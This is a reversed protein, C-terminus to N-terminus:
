SVLVYAGPALDVKWKGEVLIARLTSTWTCLGGCFRRGAVRVEHDNVWGIGTLSIMWASEGSQKDRVGSFLDKPKKVIECESAKRITRRMKPFRKLLAESPDDGSTLGSSNVSLCFTSYDPDPGTGVAFLYLFAAERIDEEQALRLDPNSPQKQALIAAPLFCM